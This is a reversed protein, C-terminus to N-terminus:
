GKSTILQFGKETLFYNLGSMTSLRLIESDTLKKIASKFLDDFDPIDRMESSSSLISLIYNHSLCQGARIGLESFIQLIENEMIQMIKISQIYNDVIYKITM